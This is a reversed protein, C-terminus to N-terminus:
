GRKSSASSAGSTSSVFLRGQKKKKIRECLNAPLFLFLRLFTPQLYSLTPQLYGRGCGHTYVYTQNDFAKIILGLFGIICCLWTLWYGFFLKIDNRPIHSCLICEIFENGVKTEGSVHAHIWTGDRQGGAGRAGTVSGIIRLIVLFWGKTCHFYSYM